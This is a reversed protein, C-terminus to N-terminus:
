HSIRITRFLAEGHNARKEGPVLQYRGHFIPAETGDTKSDRLNLRSFSSPSSMLWDASATTDRQHGTLRDRIARTRAVTDGPIARARPWELVCV